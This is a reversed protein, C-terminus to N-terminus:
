PALYESARAGDPADPTAAVYRAFAERAAMFQRQQFYLLGM